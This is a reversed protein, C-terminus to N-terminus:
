EHNFFPRLRAATEQPTSKLEQYHWTNIGDVYPLINWHVHTVTKGSASGTAGERLVLWFGKVELEKELIATAKKSLKFLLLQEAETLEQFSEIHRRPIVLLHGDIYPFINVTVVMGQEEYLIYKDKLDCFVCKKSEAEVAIDNYTGERRANLQNTESFLNSKAMAM